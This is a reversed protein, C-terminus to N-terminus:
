LHPLGHQAPSLTHGDADRYLLCLRCAQWCHLKLPRATDVRAGHQGRGAGATVSSCRHRHAATSGASRAPAATGERTLALYTAVQRPYWGRHHSATNPLMNGPPPRRGCCLLRNCAPAHATAASPQSACAQWSSGPMALEPWSGHAGDQCRLTPHRRLRWCARRAPGQPRSSQHEHRCEAAASLLVALHWM